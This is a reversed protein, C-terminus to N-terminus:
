TARPYWKGIDELCPALRPILGGVEAGRGRQFM